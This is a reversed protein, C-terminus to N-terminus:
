LAFHASIARKDAANLAASAASSSGAAATNPSLAASAPFLIESKWTARRFATVVSESLSARRPEVIWILMATRANRPNAATPYTTRVTTVVRLPITALRREPLSCTVLAAVCTAVDACDSDCPAVSCAADSSSVDADISSIADIVRM